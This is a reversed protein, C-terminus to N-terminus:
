AVKAGGFSELGDGVGDHLGLCTLKYTSSFLYIDMLESWGDM